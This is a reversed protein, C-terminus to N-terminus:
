KVVKPELDRASYDWRHKRKPDEAMACFAYGGIFGALLLLLSLFMGFISTVCGLIFKSM